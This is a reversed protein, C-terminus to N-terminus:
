KKKIGGILIPTIVIIQIKEVYKEQTVGALNRKIEKKGNKIFIM